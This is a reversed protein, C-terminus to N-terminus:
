ANSNGRKASEFGDVWGEAYTIRARVMAKIKEPSDYAPWEPKVPIEDPFSFYYRLGGFKEKIQSINYGPILRTLEDHTQKIIPYWEHGEFQAVYHENNEPRSKVFGPQSMYGSPEEVPPAVHNNETM